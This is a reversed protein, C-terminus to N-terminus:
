QKSDFNSAFNQQYLGINNYASFMKTTIKSEKLNKKLRKMIKDALIMNKQDLEYIEGAIEKIKMDIRMVDKDNENVNLGRIANQVNQFDRFYIERNKMLEIYKECAEDSDDKYAYGKTLALINKMILLCKEKLAILQDDM